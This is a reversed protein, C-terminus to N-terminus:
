FLLSELSFDKVFRELAFTFFAEQKLGQPRLLNMSIRSLFNNILRIRVPTALFALQVESSGARIGWYLLQPDTLVSQVFHAFLLSCTFRHKTASLHVGGNWDLWDARYSLASQFKYGGTDFWVHMCLEHM